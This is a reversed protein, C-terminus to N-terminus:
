TWPHMYIYIYACIDVYTTNRKWIAPKFHCSLNGDSLPSGMLTKTLLDTTSLKLGIIMKHSKEHYKSFAMTMFSWPYTYIYIYYKTTSIMQKRPYLGPSRSCRQPNWLLLESLPNSLCPETCSPFWPWGRLGLSKGLKRQFSHFPLSGFCGFCVVENLTMSKCHNFILKHELCFSSKNNRATWTVPHQGLHRFCNLQPDNKM